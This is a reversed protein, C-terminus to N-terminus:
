GSREKAALWRYFELNQYLELNDTAYLLEAEEVSAAMPPPAATPMWWLGLAAVVALAAVAGVPVFWRPTFGRPVDAHALAKRRAAQLRARTSADLADVSRDLVTRLKAIFATEDNRNTM